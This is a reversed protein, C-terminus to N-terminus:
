KGSNLILQRFFRISQHYNEVSVRENKGHIRTLDEKHIMVPMFRYINDSLEQYHRSDTGGIVLSPAVIVGPFVEQISKQIVQFGFSETGSIASPENGMNISVEIRPDAIIKRVHDAVTAQTEGPRIRFNVKASAESPLVNDKVGGSIITPATTTRVIANSSPEKSLQHILLGETLWRNSILAKFPWSMEPAIHDFFIGTAGDITAPFPTEQLNVIAKSLVGIATEAPPMSSHGGNELRATLDLTVYGKEAIGIMAAPQSLGTVADELILLGEDLIYEFQIKEKKFWDAIQQAGQKGGTEEDHGFALFISRSPSYGEALLQEISELISFVTLKDDLTGRGWIFGEKIIGSFPDEQWQNSNGEVPVVDTHGMLLVPQLDAHKGPWKFVISLPTVDMRELTSNILPYKKQIFTDLALFAKEDFNKPDSITPIQIAGSLRNEAGESINVPTVPEIIAQRSSVGSTKVIIIGAIIVLALLFLRSLLRFLKKM